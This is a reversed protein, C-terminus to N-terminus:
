AIGSAPNSGLWRREVCWSLFTKTEALANRHSDVSLKETMDRYLAECRAPRLAWLPLPDPFFKSVSWRTRKISEPKNGKAKLHAEYEDLASETTLDNATLQERLFNAYVTAQAETEFQSRTRSGDAAVEVVRFGIGHPYPGLVRAGKRKQPVPM